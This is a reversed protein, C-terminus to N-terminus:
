GQSHPSIMSLGGNCPTDEEIQSQADSGRHQGSLPMLVSAPSVEVLPSHVSSTSPMTPSPTPASAIVPSPTTSPTPASTVLPFLQRRQCSMNAIPM